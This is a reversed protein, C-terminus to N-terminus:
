LGSIPSASTGCFRLDSWPTTLIWLDNYFRHPEPTAHAAGLSTELTFVKRLPPRKSKASM